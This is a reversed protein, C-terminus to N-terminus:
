VAGWVKAVSARREEVAAPRVQRRDQLPRGPLAAPTLRTKLSLLTPKLNHSLVNPRDIVSYGHIVIRDFCHCVFALLNGFLTAFLEM